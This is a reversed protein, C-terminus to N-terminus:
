ENTSLLERENILLDPRNIVRQEIGGAYSDAENTAAYLHQPHEAHAPAAKREAHIQFPVIHLCLAEPRRMRIKRAEDSQVKDSVIQRM